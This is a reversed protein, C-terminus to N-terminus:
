AVAASTSLSTYKGVLFITRLTGILLLLLLYVRILSACVSHGTAPLLVSRAVPVESDQAVQGACTRSPPGKRECVDAGSWSAQRSELGTRGSQTGALLAALLIAALKRGPQRRIREGVEGQSGFARGSGSVGPAAGAQGRLWSGYCVFTILYTASAAGKRDRNQLPEM